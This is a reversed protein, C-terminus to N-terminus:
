TYKHMYKWKYKVGEGAHWIQRSLGGAEGAGERGGVWVLHTTFYYASDM